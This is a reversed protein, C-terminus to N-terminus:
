NMREKIRKVYLKLIDIEEESFDKDKIEPTFLKDLESQLFDRISNELVDFQGGKKKLVQGQLLTRIANAKELKTDIDLFNVMDSKNNKIKDEVKHFSEVENKFDVKSSKLHEFESFDSLQKRVFGYDKVLRDYFLNARGFQQRTLPENNNVCRQWHTETDPDFMLIKEASNNREILSLYELDEDDLLPQRNYIQPWILEGWASRDFVVDQGDYNSYLRVIEELYSEGSYGPHFYKKDPASMHVVKFGKKRYMEAITTKGSRDLGELIIFAM